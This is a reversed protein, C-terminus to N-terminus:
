INAPSKIANMNRGTYIPISVSCNENIDHKLGFSQLSIFPHAFDTISMDTSSDLDRQKLAKVVLYKNEGDKEINLVAVWDAVEIVGWSSGIQSRNLVESTSGIAGRRMSDVAAAAARNMQHGTIIPIDYQAAIAKLENMIAHLETMESQTAASDTRAPRIRKIYDLFVAVVQTTETNFARIINSLDATSKERYGYYLIVSRFGQSSMQQNIMDCIEDVTFMSMDATPYLLAWLRRITQAMTNEMSIYMSIPTKGDLHEKIHANYKCTCVHGDLLM